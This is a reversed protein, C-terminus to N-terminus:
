HLFEAERKFQKLQQASQQSIQIDITKDCMVALLIDCAAIHNQQMPHERIRHSINIWNNYGDHLANCM